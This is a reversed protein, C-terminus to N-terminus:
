GSFLLDRIFWELSDRKSIGLERWLGFTGPRSSASTTASPIV